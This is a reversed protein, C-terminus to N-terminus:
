KSEPTGPNAKFIVIMSPFPCSNKSNSYHLRGKIFRVEFKKYIFEHFWKTDVRAPILMVTIVNNKICENYAKEVWLKVESYPPNCFVTENKWSHALGNEIM